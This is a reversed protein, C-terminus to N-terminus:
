VFFQFGTFRGVLMMIAFAIAFLVIGIIAYTLRSRAGEIAEKDGGSMMWQMASWLIMFVFIIGAITYILIILNNLFNSIGFSGIGLNEIAAPPNIKGFVQGTPTLPTCYLGPNKPDFQCTSTPKCESNTTCPDADETFAYSNIPILLNGTILSLAIISAFKIM